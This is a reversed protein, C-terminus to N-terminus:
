ATKTGKFSHTDTREQKNRDPPEQHFSPSATEIAGRLDLLKMDSYDDGVTLNIDSHRMLRQRVEAPVGAKRLRTNFTTRAAKRDAQRGRADKWPVGARELDRKWTRLEPEGDTFIM